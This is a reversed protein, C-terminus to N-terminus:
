KVGFDLAYSAFDISGESGEAPIIAELLRRDGDEAVRKLEDIWDTVEQSLLDSASRMDFPGSILIQMGDSGRYLFSIQTRGESIEAFRNRNLRVIHSIRNQSALYKIAISETAESAQLLKADFGLVNILHDGTVISGAVFSDVCGGASIAVAYLTSLSDGWLWVQLNSRRGKRSEVIRTLLETAEPSFSALSIAKVAAPTCAYVHMATDTKPHAAIIVNAADKAQRLVWEVENLQWPGFCNKIFNPGITPHGIFLRDAERVIGSDALCMVPFLLVLSMALQM